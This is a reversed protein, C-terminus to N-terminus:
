EPLAELCRKTDEFLADIDDGNSSIEFAAKEAREIAPLREDILAEGCARTKCACADDRFRRLEAMGADAAKREEIIKYALGGLGAPVAVILAIIGFRNLRANKKKNAAIEAQVAPNAPDNAWADAPPPPTPDAHSDADLTLVSELDGAGATARARFPGGDALAGADADKLGDLIRESALRANVAVKRRTTAAVLRLVAYACAAQMPTDAGFRAVDDPTRGNSVEAFRADARPRLVECDRATRQLPDCASGFAALNFLARRAERGRDERRWSWSWASLAALMAAIVFGAPSLTVAAGVAGLPAWMRLYTAAVSRGSLKIDFGILQDGARRSVWVSCIPVLPVWYVHAFKTAVHEGRLGGVRGYHHLGYVIIM